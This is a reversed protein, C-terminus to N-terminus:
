GIIILKELQSLSLGSAKVKGLGTINLMGDPMIKEHYETQSGLNSIALILLKDNPRIIYNAPVSTPDSQEQFGAQKFYEMGFPIAADGFGSRKRLLEFSLNLEFIRDRLETQQMYDVSSHAKSTLENVSVTLRDLKTKIENLQTQTVSDVQRRMSLITVEIEDLSKTIYNIDNQLSLTQEMADKNLPTQDNTASEKKAKNSDASNILKKVDAVSSIKSNSKNAVEAYANNRQISQSFVMVCLLVSVIILIKRM